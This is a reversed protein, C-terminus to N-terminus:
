VEGDKLSSRVITILDDVAKTLTQLGEAYSANVDQLAKYDERPVTSRSLIKGTYFLTLFVLALGLAALPGLLVEDM